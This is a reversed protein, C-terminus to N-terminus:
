YKIGKQKDKPTLVTSMQVLYVALIRKYEKM